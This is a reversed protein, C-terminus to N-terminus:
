SSILRHIDNFLAFAMLVGLMGLGISQGIEQLREPVPSGKISEVLYYMLHGGDLVPIPLLNLIGISISILALFRLYPSIGLRASQGAYDAITVPGSINRWSIEGVVMREMMVVSLRATEWSERSAKLLADAVGYRVVTLMDGSHAPDPQVAIGVRGITVGNEVVRQPTLGIALRSTGRQLEMVLPRDAAAQITTVVDDWYRVPKADIAVVVDGPRLGAQAAPSGEMISGVIANVPARYLRLGVTHAPDESLNAAGMARLDLQRTNIKNRANITDIVLVRHELVGNLVQMRLESWTALPQGDIATVREGGVIGSAAAISAPAPDGLVPKIDQVGHMFMVWYLMVALALNAVPGAGVIAVRRLVPQRNFARHLEEPAVPAEREDLMKVYGGLPILAVSWTTQDTGFRWEGLSKGFGVSFRLVKVGCWRAVLFHGLEHIVVLVGIAVIFAGVTWAMGAGNM